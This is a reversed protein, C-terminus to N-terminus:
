GFKMEDNGGHTLQLIGTEIISSLTTAPLKKRVLISLFASM